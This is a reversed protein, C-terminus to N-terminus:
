EIQLKRHVMLISEFKHTPDFNLPSTIYKNYIRLIDQESHRIYVIDRLWSEDMPSIGCSDFLDPKLKEFQFATSVKKKKVRM